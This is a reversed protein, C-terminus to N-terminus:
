KISFKYNLGVGVQIYDDVIDIGSLLYRAFIETDWYSSISYLVGAEVGYLLDDESHSGIQYESYGMCAGLFPKIKGGDSPIFYDISGLVIYQSIDANGVESDAILDYIISARYSESQAGVSIGLAGTYDDFSIRTGPDQATSGHYKVEVGIFSMDKAMLNQTGCVLAIAVLSQLLRGIIKM